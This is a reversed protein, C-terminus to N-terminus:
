QESLSMSRRLQLDLASEAEVVGVEHPQPKRLDVQRARRMKKQEEAEGEKWTPRRAAARSKTVAEAVPGLEPEQSALMPARLRSPM